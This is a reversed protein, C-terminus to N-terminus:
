TQNGSMVALHKAVCLPLASLNYGGELVSIIRGQCHKDAMEMMRQTMWGFFDTSLLIHGLPDDEHADFGASIIVFDPKFDDIKPLIRDRFATEYDKVGVGAAMPCNLVSGKGKGIGTESYAGTGPYYPYEHTSIYLVSPDEEFTHQTGNGHHVDWDLILIKDFGHQKQLNRALIAVNNFLCFGMAQDHEAHHGPPRALVFGNEVKGEVIASALAVPAGAALLSVEFSKQSIPVDMSDLFSQNTECATQARQIYKNSHSTELWKREIAATPLQQLDKFWPQSRLHAMTVRLREHSEPHGEGTNHDLFADDYIFGTNM